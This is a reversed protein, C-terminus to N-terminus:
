APVQLRPPVRFHHGDTTALVVSKLTSGPYGGVVYGAGGASVGNSDSRPQAM